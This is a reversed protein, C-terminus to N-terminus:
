WVTLRVEVVNYVPGDIANPIPYYGQQSTQTTGYQWLEVNGESPSTLTQNDYLTVIYTSTVADDSPQGRYVMPVRKTENAQGPVRYRVDINYTRDRVTFTQNLLRGFNRPPTKTGYGVRQNVGGEFTRADPDWYRVFESLDSVNHSDNHAVVTLIDDSESQLQARREPNVSGGTTPTIVVSQLAFLVATLIVITGILGELTFAQSRDAKRFRIDHRM